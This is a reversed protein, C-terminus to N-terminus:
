NYLCNYCVGHAELVKNTIKFGSQKARESFADDIVPDTLGIIKHCNDCILLQMPHESGFHNCMLYANLSEIRHIFHNELLFDLARYITPPKANTDHGQLLKLLDYASIAGKQEAMLLFVRQRTATFRIKKHKCIDIARELLPRHM